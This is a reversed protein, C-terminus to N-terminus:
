YKPSEGVGKSKVFEMLKELYVIDEEALQKDQSLEKLQGILVTAEDFCNVKMLCAVYMRQNKPEIEAVRPRLKLLTAKSFELQSQTLNKENQSSLLAGVLVVATSPDLDIGGKILPVIQAFILIGEEVQQKRILFEGLDISIDVSPKLSLAKKLCAVAQRDVETFETENQRLEITMLGLALSTDYSESDLAYGIKAWEYARSPKKEINYCDATMAALLAAKQKQPVTRCEGM